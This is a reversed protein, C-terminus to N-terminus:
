RRTKWSLRYLVFMRCFRRREDLELVGFLPLLLVLPLMLFESLVLLAVVSDVVSNDRSVDLTM